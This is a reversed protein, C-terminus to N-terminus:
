EKWKPDVAEVYAFFNRDGEFVYIPQLYNQPEESDYYALYVKRITIQGNENQGLNAFYGEKAQIEQWANNVPKLPYTAVIERELPFHIYNIEIIRKGMERSGSFLFSVLSNKPNPPFIKLNDLDARFINVRLLDAESLSPAPTLGNPTLNLYDFEASGTALDATLLGNTRLFNKAEQAAQENTPLNKNTLITQDTEYPYRLQFNGHNINMELTTPPVAENTWRYLTENVTQPQGRFGMKRAKENARDLALLNPRGVPMFYVKGVNPLSPLSGEITELRFTLKEKGIPLKDEPFKVKPLVGFAVTPPPPPPPHLKQWIESAMNLSVKAIIFGVLLISSFALGRRTYYTTQTLTAM